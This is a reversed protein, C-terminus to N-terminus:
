MKLSVTIFLNYKDHEEKLTKIKTKTIENLKMLDDSNNETEILCNSLLEELGNVLKNIVNDKENLLELSKGLFVFYINNYKYYLNNDDM